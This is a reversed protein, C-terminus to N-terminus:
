SSLHLTIKQAEPDDRVRTLAEAARDLPYRATLLPALEVRGRVVHDIALTYDRRRAARTGILALEKEYLQYYPFAGDTASITGFLLVTGGPAALDVATRLGALAGSTEVVLDAGEGGTLEAVLTAAEGPQGTATAGLGDALALKSGTRSIGIVTDVGRARLLQLHLLGSVGLGVVVAVQGPDVDVLAQGHVCTGLIQLLPGQEDPVGDPLAILQAPDVTLGTTFVGDLDRGLLGGSGCLHALDNRCRRCRGCAVTPDILVRTGSTFVEGDDVVEGVAEHGLIRPHDIPVDGTLIKLDTGCIGAERVAIHVASPTHVTASPVDRVELAGPGTVVAARRQRGPTAPPLPLPDHAAPM